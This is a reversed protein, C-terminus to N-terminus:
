VGPLALILLAAYVYLVDKVNRHTRKVHISTFHDLAQTFVTREEFSSDSLLLLLILIFVAVILSYFCFYM